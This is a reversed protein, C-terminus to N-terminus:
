TGKPIWISYSKAPVPFTGRGSADTTVEVNGHGSADVLKTNAFPSEVTRQADSGDNLLLLLGPHSADGARAYIYVDQDTEDYERGQGYAHKQRVGILRKLEDGLGGEYWDLYFLCPYGPHTLIYAYALTKLKTVPSHLAGSNVTDHNDVFTVAMDGHQAVFGASRLGRMDWSGDGDSMHQFVYHLPVDFLHTRGGTLTAYDALKAPDGTWAESVAFRDGKVADLWENVFPMHIHKIADLRYGDLSLKDTLWKGWAIMEARVEPDTYRIEAGLLNDYADGGEYPAFDWAHWQKWGGEDSGNFRDARWPFGSYAAGRGPFDFRTHVSATGGGLLTVQEVGDGGMMHNMVVDGFVRLNAGHLAGIMGLLESLTGYRTAVTGRQDFEGLDYRDYVGYGVDNAGVHGKHPPPIWLAGVGAASLEPAKQALNKWWSGAATQQPVNWYFAQMMVFEQSSSPPPGGDPPPATGSAPPTPVDSTSTPVGGTSAYDLSGCAPLSALIAAALAYRPRAM